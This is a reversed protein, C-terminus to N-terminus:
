GAKEVAVPSLYHQGTGLGSELYLARPFRIDQSPCDGFLDYFLGNMRLEEFVYWLAFM